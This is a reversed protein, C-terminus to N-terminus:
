DANNTDGTDIDLPAKLHEEVIEPPLRLVRWMCFSVLLLISGVSVLMIALGASTM